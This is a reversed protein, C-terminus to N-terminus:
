IHVQYAIAGHGSRARRLGAVGIGPLSCGICIESRTRVMFGESVRLTLVRAMSNRAWPMCTVLRATPSGSKGVGLCIQSAALAAMSALKQRYVATGPM